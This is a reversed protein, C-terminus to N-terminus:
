VIGDVVGTSEMAVSEIKLEELWSALAHLDATFTGFKRIPQDTLDPSVKVYHAQNGLDIGAVNPNIMELQNSLKKNYDNWKESKKKSRPKKM